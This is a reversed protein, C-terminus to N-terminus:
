RAAKVEFDLTEGSDLRELFTAFFGPIPSIKNM